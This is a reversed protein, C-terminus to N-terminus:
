PKNKTKNKISELALATLEDDKFDLIDDLVECYNTTVDAGYEILLKVIEKHGNRSAWAIAYNNEATVDAGAEILLKVIEEHGNRSAWRIAYNGDATVDAGAEILLKVIETNGNASAYQIAYNNDAGAKICFEVLSKCGKEVAEKMLNNLEQQKLEKAEKLLEEVTM